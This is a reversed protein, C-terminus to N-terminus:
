AGANWNLKARSRVTRVVGGSEAFAQAEELRDDRGARRCGALVEETHEGLGPDPAASPDRGEIKFLSGLLKVAGVRDHALTSSGTPGCRSM